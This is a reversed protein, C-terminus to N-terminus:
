RYSPTFPRLPRGPVGMSGSRLEHLRESVTPMKPPSILLQVPSVLQPSRSVPDNRFPNAGEGSPLHPPGDFRLEAEAEPAPIELVAPGSSISSTCGDCGCKNCSLLGSLKNKVGSILLRLDPVCRSSCCKAPAGCKPAPAACRPAACKPTPAACKPAACRPAKCGCKPAGCSPTIKRFPSGCSKACGCNGGHGAWLLAAAPVVQSTQPAYADVPVQAHLNSCALAVVLMFSSGFALFRM